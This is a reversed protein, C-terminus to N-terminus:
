RHTSNPPITWMERISIGGVSGYEIVYGGRRAFHVMIQPLHPPHHHLVGAVLGLRTVVVRVFRVVRKDTTGGLIGLWQPPLAQSPLRRLRVMDGLMERCVLAYALRAPRTTFWETVIFERLERLLALLPFHSM